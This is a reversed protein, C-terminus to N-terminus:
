VKVKEQWDSCDFQFIGMVKNSRPEAGGLLPRRAWVGSWSFSEALSTMHAEPSMKAFEKMQRGIPELPVSGAVGLMHPWHGSSRLSNQGHFEECCADLQPPLPPSLGLPDRYSPLSPSSAM